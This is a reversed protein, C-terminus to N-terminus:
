RSEPAPGTELMEQKQIARMEDIIREFINRLARDELPGQNAARVNEMVQEERRPEYIPTAKGRKLVGIAHACRARQNLLEVLQRDLGDIQIRWDAIEM